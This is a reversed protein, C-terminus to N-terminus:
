DAQYGTIYDFGGLWAQNSVAFTYNLVLIDDVSKQIVLDLLPSSYQRPDVVYIHEYNDILYPIFANGFSDKVVLITKGNAVESEIYGLPVDGGLYNMYHNDHDGGAFLLTGSIPNDYTGDAYYEYYAQHKPLFIEARDASNLLLPSQGTYGYLSGLFTSEPMTLTMEELSTAELELTDCFAKYAYYAGRGTWHHDTRFYIYEDTHAALETYADVKYITDAEHKYINQIASFNSYSGTRLEETGYFAVATPTVLSIVRKDEPMISRLHNIRKAYDETFEPAYYHIEMAQGKIIVINSTQYDSKRDEESRFETARVDRIPVDKEKSEEAPGDEGQPSSEEEPNGATLPPHEIAGQGGDDKKATILHIDDDGSSISLLGYVGELGKNVAILSERFPFQDAYYADIAASFDGKLLADFSFKPRQALARNERSSIESTPWFLFVVSFIALPLFFTLFIILDNRRAKQTAKRADSTKKTPFPRRRDKKKRADEALKRKRMSAVHQEQREEPTFQRSKIKGSIPARPRRGRDIVTPKQLRPIKDVSAEEPKKQPPSLKARRPRKFAKEEKRGMM